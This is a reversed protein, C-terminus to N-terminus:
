VWYLNVYPRDIKEAWDQLADFMPVYRKPDQREHTEVFVCDIRSLIPHDMLRNLIDWEAGEIDMKLIRIDRDLAELYALIDIVEVRVANENNAGDGGHVLSSGQTNASPDDPSWKASRYLMLSAPQHGAAKHVLTVNPLDRVADQLVGFAGPDPEFGIVDAGTSAMRKTIEGINAGLDICLDGARTESLVESFTDQMRACQRRKLKRRAIYGLNGPLRMGLAMIIEFTGKVDPRQATPLTRQTM